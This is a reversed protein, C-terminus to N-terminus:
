RAEEHVCVELPVNKPYLKKSVNPYPVVTHEPLALALDTIRDMLTEAIRQREEAIPADARFRVPEGYCVRSLRPAVYMPVFYLERGTKRYFFRALDVFRDKFQHVINNHETYCEPFIVISSGDRLREISRRFTTILRSDHYVGVTHANNFILVALPPLLRSFIRYLWRVSRPKGSWFDRFAYESVEEAHMMEGACWVDHKLPTYLEGAIPGFMQSHNGVIVCSERPINETGELTFKPSFVWVLYRIVRYTWPTKKDNLYEGGPLLAPFSRKM